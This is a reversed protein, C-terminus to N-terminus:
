SVKKLGPIGKMYTILTTKLDPKYDFLIKGYTRPGINIITENLESLPILEDISGVQIADYHSNVQRGIRVGEQEILKRAQTKSPAMGTIYLIEYVPIGNNRIASKINPYLEPDSLNYFPIETPLERMQIVREFEQKARAAPEEGHYRAVIKYALDKKSSMPDKEFGKQWAEETLLNYWEPLISDPISMVRGFMDYPEMSLPIHNDLSKSMKKKGDIGTLLPTMYGIQPEIGFARQLNRGVQFNIEQDKGGVEVHTALVLSDIAQYTPYFFQLMSLRKSEKVRKMSLNPRASSRMLMEELEGKTFGHDGHWESNYRVTTKNKDLIKFLIPLISLANKRAEKLSIGPREGLGSPDGIRATWDGIVIDVHCGLEQFLRVKHLGVTHGLHLVDPITPDIGMKINMTWYQGHFLRLANELGYDSDTEIGGRLLRECWERIEEDIREREEPSAGEYHQKHFELVEGDRYKWGEIVQELSERKKRLAMKHIAIKWWRM